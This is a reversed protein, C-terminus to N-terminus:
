ECQRLKKQWMRVTDPHLDLLEAVGYPVAFKSFIAILFIKRVDHVGHLLTGTTAAFWSNCSKCRIRKNRYFSKKLRPSAIEAACHPCAPRRDQHLWRIILLDSEDTGLFERCFFDLANLAISSGAQIGEVRAQEINEVTEM